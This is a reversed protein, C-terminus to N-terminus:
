GGGRPGIAIFVVIFLIIFFAVFNFPEQLDEPIYSYITPAILGIFLLILGALLYTYVEKDSM